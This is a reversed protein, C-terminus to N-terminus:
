QKSLLFGHRRLDPSIYLGVIDGSANIGRTETYIADPFDISTHTDNSFLYGHIKGLNDRYYGVMQGSPNIRWNMGMVSGPFDNTIYEGNRVILSHMIRAEDFWCGVITDGKGTLSHVSATSFSFPPDHVTLQGRKDLVGAHTKGNVDIYSGTIKGNASIGWPVFKGEPVDTTTFNDDRLLFGHWNNGADRYEGVIDGPSNVGYVHTMTSGPFDIATFNGDRLLFGHMQNALDTFNGVIDGESNIDYPATLVADPFDITTFRPESDAAVGAALILGFTAMCLAALWMKTANTRFLERTM